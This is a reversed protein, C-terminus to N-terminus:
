ASRRKMSRLGYAAIVVFCVFSLAFSARTSSLTVFGLDFADMDMIRGQLPPLLFGGGIAMILGAAGLKADTGLGRLAIGYITPFMLSMCASTAVLSFLGARGGVFVTCAICGAGALALVMLLRGADVFKLLYTCVFRSSVFIVMAAINWTQADAKTMGLEYEGYHIIFTWCMIQAGVYFAQAVVGQMYRANGLLRRLTDIARIDHEEEGRTNPLRAFMFAVMIAVVVVGLILYPGIIVGLDSQQLAAFSEPDTEAMARRTSEDAPDLRALIFQRAVFMGTLSGLPNFAQAFNLRRTATEEPGMSLIYP